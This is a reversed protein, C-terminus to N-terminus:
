EFQGELRLSSRIRVWYTRTNKNLWNGYFNPLYNNGCFVSSHIIKTVYSEISSLKENPQLCICNFDAWLIRTPTFQVCSNSSMHAALLKQKFGFDKAAQLSIGDQHWYLCDKPLSLTELSLLRKHPGLRIKNKKHM